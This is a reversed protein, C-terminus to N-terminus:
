TSKFRVFPSLLGLGKVIHILFNSLSDTRFPDVTGAIQNHFHVLCYHYLMCDLKQVVHDGRAEGLKSIFTSLQKTHQLGIVILLNQVGQFKYSELM